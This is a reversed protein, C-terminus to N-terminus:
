ADGRARRREEFAREGEDGEVIGRLSPMRREVYERMGKLVWNPTRHAHLPRKSVDSLGVHPVQRALDEQAMSKMPEFQKWFPQREVYDQQVARSRDVSVQFHKSATIPAPFHPLPPPAAFPMPPSAPPPRSTQSSTPPPSTRTSLTSPRLMEDIGDTTPPPPKSDHFPNDEAHASTGSELTPENAMDENPHQIVKELSFHIPSADLAKQASNADRYIALIINDAPNHYEYKLSKYMSLEGFRQLVRFIERGESLNAPRPVVRLHVSRASLLQSSARRVSM